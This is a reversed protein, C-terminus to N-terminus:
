IFPPAHLLGDNDPPENRGAGAHRVVVGALGRRHLRQELLGPNRGGFRLRLRLVCLALGCQFWPSPGSARAKEKLSAIIFVRLSPFFPGITDASPRPQMPM